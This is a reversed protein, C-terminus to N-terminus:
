VCMVLYLNVQLYYTKIFYIAETSSLYLKIDSRFMLVQNWSVITNVIIVLTQHANFLILLFAMDLFYTKLNTKNFFIDGEWSNTLLKSYLLIYLIM